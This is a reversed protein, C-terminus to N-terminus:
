QFHQGAQAPTRAVCLHDSTNLNIEYEVREVGPPVIGGFSQPTLRPFDDRVWLLTEEVVRYRTKAYEEDHVPTYGAQLLATEYRGMTDADSELKDRIRAILGPLSNSAGPEERLQMGFFLLQGHEPPLLQDIGHVRFVRGRTSSTAKVEVSRETWEFDHRAGFPGHWRRVAEASGVRPLLWVHLFWLEGFLGMQEERSLLSRPAQGWFRRWKALVRRTIDAPQRDARALEQALENGLLELISYGAADRCEVDLYRAPPQGRVILDRTVVSLGRSQDDHLDDDPGNLTILLHRQGQSDIACLLRGTLEPIGPRAALQDGAPRAQELRAWVDPLIRSMGRTEVESHRGPLCGGGAAPSEVGPHVHVWFAAALENVTLDSTAVPQPLRRGAAEWEAIVRAYEHRSAATGHKGLLVDRRGGLGDPLTVVAQGSQKHRRYSPVGIRKSM